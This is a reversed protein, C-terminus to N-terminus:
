RGIEGPRAGVILHGAAAAASGGKDLLLAGIQRHLALRIPQPIASYVNTLVNADPFTLAEGRAAILRSDILEQMSPLLRGVPEGMVGAVDSLVFSAGFTAAVRLLRQAEPSLSGSASPALVQSRSAPKSQGAPSPAM